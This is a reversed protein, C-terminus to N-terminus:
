NVNRYDSPLTFLAIPQDKLQLNQLTYTSQGFRPDTTSSQVIAEIDPSTWTETVIAIPRENGVQGAPITITQRKGICTVGQINKTGLPDAVIDHNEDLKPLKVNAVTDLKLTVERLSSVTHAIKEHPDLVYATRAVPDDIFIKTEGPHADFSPFTQERRIRGQSDRYIVSSSHQVIRNGDSLTQVIETTSSASYPKGAVVQNHASLIELKEQIEKKARLEAQAAHEAEQAAQDPLSAIQINGSTPAQQALACTSALFFLALTPIFPKMTIETSSLTPLLNM